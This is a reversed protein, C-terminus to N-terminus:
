TSQSKGYYFLHDVDFKFLIQLIQKNNKADMLAKIINAGQLLKSIKALLRIHVFENPACIMFFIHVPKDDPTNYDIGIKSRLIIINPKKFLDPSPHRPHPIVVGNGIATSFMKERRKLQVLLNEMSRTLKNGYAIKALESLASEVYKGEFNLKILNDNTLRSLPIIDSATNIILDLERDPASIIKDQLYNDISTLYFRWQNGIKVGPIQSNKALKIVTKENVKIYEALEKTTMVANNAM